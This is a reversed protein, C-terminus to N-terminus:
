PVATNNAARLTYSPSTAPHTVSEVGESFKTSNRSVEDGLRRRTEVQMADDVVELGVGSLQDFLEEVLVRKDMQV